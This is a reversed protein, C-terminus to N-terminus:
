LPPPPLVPFRLQGIALSRDPELRSPSLRPEAPEGDGSANETRKLRVLPVLVSLLVTSLKM